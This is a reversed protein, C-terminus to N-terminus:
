AIRAFGPPLEEESEEPFPYPEEFASPPAEAELPSPLPSLEDTTAMSAAIPEEQEELARQAKRKEYRDLEAVLEAETMERLDHHKPQYSNNISVNLESDKFMQLVKALLELAKLKNGQSMPEESERFALLKIESVVREALNEEPKFAEAIAAMVNVNRLLRSAQVALAEDSGSYGAEQAALRGNGGNRLYSNVFRQQKLTLKTM